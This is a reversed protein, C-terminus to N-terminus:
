KGYNLREYFNKWISILYLELSNWKRSNKMSDVDKQAKGM